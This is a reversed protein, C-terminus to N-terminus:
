WVLEINNGNPDVIVAFKKGNALQLIDKSSNERVFAQQVENLPPLELGLRAKTPRKNENSPYIEFVTNNLKTSFHVPGNEHKEKVFSLGLKSLFDKTKEMDEVYYVLLYVNM